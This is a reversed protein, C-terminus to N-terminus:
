PMVWAQWAIGVAAGALAAATLVLAARGRRRWRGRMALGMLHRAMAQDRLTADREFKIATGNM